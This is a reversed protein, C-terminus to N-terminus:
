VLSIFFAGINSPQLYLPCPALSKSYDNQIGMSRIGKVKSRTSVQGGWHRTAFPSHFPAFSTKGFSGTECFQISEATTPYRLKRGHIGIERRGSQRLSWIDSWAGRSCISLTKLFAGGLGLQEDGQSCTGLFSACMFTRRLSSPHPYHLLHANEM